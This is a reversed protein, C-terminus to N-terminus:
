AAEAGVMDADAGRLSQRGRALLAEVAAAEALIREPVFLDVFRTAAAYAYEASDPCDDGAAPAEALGHATIPSLATPARTEHTQPPTAGRLRGRRRGRGRTKVNM